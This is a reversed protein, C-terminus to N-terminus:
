SGGPSCRYRRFNGYRLLKGDPSQVVGGDIPKLFEQLEGGDVSVRFLASDTDTKRVYIWKGDKTVGMLDEGTGRTIQKLNGGDLDVRWIHAERNADSVTRMFVVFEGQSVWRGAFAAFNGSTLQRKGSGDLNMTWIQALGGVAQNFIVVDNAAPRIGSVANSSGAGFTLQRPSPGVKAEVTWANAEIRETSSASEISIGALAFMMRFM